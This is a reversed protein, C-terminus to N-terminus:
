EKCTIEKLAAVNRELDRELEVLLSKFREDKHAEDMAFREIFSLTGTLKYLIKIKNYLNDSVPNAM